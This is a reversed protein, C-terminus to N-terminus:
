LQLQRQPDDFSGVDRGGPSSYCDSVGNGIIVDWSVELRVRAGEQQIVTDVSAEAARVMM